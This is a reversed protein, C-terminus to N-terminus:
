DMRRYVLAASCYGCHEMTPEVVLKTELIWSNFHKHADLKPFLELCVPIEAKSFGEQDVTQVPADALEVFPPFHLPLSEPVLLPGTYIQLYHM